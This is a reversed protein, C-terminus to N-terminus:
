INKEGVLVKIFRRVISMALCHSCLKSYLIVDYGLSGGKRFINIIIMEDTWENMWKKLFDYIVTSHHFFCLGQNRPAGPPDYFLYTIDAQSIHQSFLFLVPSLSLSLLSQCFGLVAM